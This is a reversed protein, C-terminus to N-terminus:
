KEGTIFSQIRAIIMFDKTVQSHKGTRIKKCFEEITEQESVSENILSNSKPFKFDEIIIASIGLRELTKVIFPFHKIHGGTDGDVLIPKTTVELIENITGLRSTFDILEIDPKGKSTSDALYTGAAIAIAEIESTVPICEEEVKLNSCPIGYKNM